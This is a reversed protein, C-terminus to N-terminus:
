HKILCCIGFVMIGFGLLFILLHYPIIHAIFIGVGLAILMCGILRPICVPKRRPKM